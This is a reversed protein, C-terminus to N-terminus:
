TKRSLIEYVPKNDAYVQWLAIRGDTVRARWAAPIRWSAGSAAHTAAAWGCALVLDGHSASSELEVRYDPFLAFYGAWARELQAHGSFRSGLSDVFVHDAACLAVIGNPDRANIRAVFEHVLAEASTASL